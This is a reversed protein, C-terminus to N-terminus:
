TYKAGLVYVADCDVGIEQSCGSAVVRAMHRAMKGVPDLKRSFNLRTKVAKKLRPLFSLECTKTDNIM